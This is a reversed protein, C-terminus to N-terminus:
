SIKSDKWITTWRKRSTRPCIGATSCNSATNERCTSYINVNSKKTLKQWRGLLYCNADKSGCKLDFIYTTTRAGTLQRAKISSPLVRWKTKNCHESSRSLQESFNQLSVGTEKTVNNNVHVNKVVSLCLSWSINIIVRTFLFLLAQQQM